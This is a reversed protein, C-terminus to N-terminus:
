FQHSGMLLFHAATTIVSPQTEASIMFDTVLLTVQRYQVALEGSLSPYPHSGNADTVDGDSDAAAPRPYGNDGRPSCQSMEPAFHESDTKVDEYKKALILATSDFLAQYKSETCSLSWM